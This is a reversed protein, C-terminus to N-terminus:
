SPQRLALLHGQAGRRRHREPYRPLHAMRGQGHPRLVSRCRWTRKRAAAVMAKGEEVTVSAPKEVYVHKGTECAHVTQVAHWHDPTAILVADIDKREILSRYDPYTGRGEGVTNAAAELRNADADCV